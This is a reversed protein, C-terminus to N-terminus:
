GQFGTYGYRRAVAIFNNTMNKEEVFYPDVLNTKSVLGRLEAESPLTDFQSEVLVNGQKWSVEVEMTM